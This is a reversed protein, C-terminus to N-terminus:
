RESLSVVRCFRLIQTEIFRERINPIAIGAKEGPDIAFRVVVAGFGDVEVYREDQYENRGSQVECPYNLPHVCRQHPKHCCARQWQCGDREGEVWDHSVRRTGQGGPHNCSEDQHHGAQQHEPKRLFGFRLAIGVHVAEEEIEEKSTTPLPLAGLVVVMMVKM